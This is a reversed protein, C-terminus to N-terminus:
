GEFWLSTSLGVYTVDLEAVEPCFGKVSKLKAKNATVSPVGEENNTGTLETEEGGEYTCNVLFGCKVNKITNM